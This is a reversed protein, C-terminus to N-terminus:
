FMMVTYITMLTSYFHLSLQKEECWHTHTDTLTFHFLNFNFSNVTSCCEFELLCVWVIVWTANNTEHGLLGLGYRNICPMNVWWSLWPTIGIFNPKKIYANPLSWRHEAMNVRDWKQVSEAGTFDYLTFYLELAAM